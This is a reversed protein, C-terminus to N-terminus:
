VGLAEEAGFLRDVLARVDNLPEFRTLRIDRHAPRESKSRPHRTIKEGLAALPQGPEGGFWRYQEIALTRLDHVMLVACGAPKDGLRLQLSIGDTSGGARVAKLQVHRTVGRAELIVDYGSNDVESHSVAFDFIGRRWLESTVDALFRHELIKERTSSYTSLATIWDADAM